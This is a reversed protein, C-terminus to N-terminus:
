VIIELVNFKFFQFHSHSYYSEWVLRVIGLNFAGNFPASFCICKKLVGAILLDKEIM